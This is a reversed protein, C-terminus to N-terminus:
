LLEVADQFRYGAKERFGREIKLVFCEGVAMSISYLRSGLCTIPKHDWVCGVFACQIRVGPCNDKTVGVESRFTM